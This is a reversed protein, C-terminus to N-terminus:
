PGNEAPGTGVGSRKSRASRFSGALPSLLPGRVLLVIYVASLHDGHFYLAVHTRYTAWVGFAERGSPPPPTALQEPSVTPALTDSVGALSAAVLEAQM